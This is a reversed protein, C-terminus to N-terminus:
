LDVTVGRAKESITSRETTVVMTAVVHHEDVGVSISPPALKVIVHHRSAGLLLSHVHVKPSLALLHHGGPMAGVSVHKDVDLLFSKM